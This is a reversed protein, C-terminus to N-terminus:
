QLANALVANCYDLRSHVLAHMLAHAAEFSLSRCLLRIQRIQFYCVSSIHSVHAVLSLESDLVVGLNRVQRSPRISVDAIYLPGM